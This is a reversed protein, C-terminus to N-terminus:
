PILRLLNEPIQFLGKPQNFTNAAQVQQNSFNKVQKDALNENILPM